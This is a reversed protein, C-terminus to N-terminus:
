PRSSPRARVSYGPANPALRRNGRCPHGVTKPRWHATLGQDPYGLFRTHNASVGLCALAALAEARRRAGWRARDAAELQWRHEIVRQPWPNNDGDTAFIVRAAGGAAVIQQLLGGTALTEDDPHPAFVMVRKWEVPNPLMKM